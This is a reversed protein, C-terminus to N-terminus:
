SKALRPLQTRWEALGFFHSHAYAGLVTIPSKALPINAPGHIIARPTQPASFAYVSSFM